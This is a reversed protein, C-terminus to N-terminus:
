QLDLEIGERVTSPDIKRKPLDHNIHLKDLEASSM